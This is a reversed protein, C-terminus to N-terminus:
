TLADYSDLRIADSVIEGLSSLYYKAGKPITCNAIAIGACHDGVSYDLTRKLMFKKFEDYTYRRDYWPTALGENITIDGIYYESIVYPRGNSGECIVDAYAQPPFRLDFSIKTIDGHYSHYGIKITSSEQCFLTRKHHHLVIPKGLTATEGVRWEKRHFFSFLSIRGNPNKKFNMVKFVKLDENATRERREEETYARYCM